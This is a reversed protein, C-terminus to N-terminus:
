YCYLQFQDICSSYFSTYIIVLLCVANNVSLITPVDLINIPITSLYFRLPFYYNGVNIAQICCLVYLVHTYTHARIHIHARMHTHRYTYARAHKIIFGLCWGFRHLRYSQLAAVLQHLFFMIKHPPRNVDLCILDGTPWHCDTPTYHINNHLLRIYHTYYLVRYIHWLFM